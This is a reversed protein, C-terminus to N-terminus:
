APPEAAHLLKMMERATKAMDPGPSLAFLDGIVFVRRTKVASLYPLASWLRREAAQGEPGDDQGPLFVLIAEPDLHMIQEVGLQPFVAPSPPLLNVGGALTLLEDLFTGKPAVYIERLEGSAHGVSILTRVPKLGASEGRVAELEARIRAILAQGAAVNGLREALVSIAAYADAVSDTPLPLATVGLAELRQQQLTMSRQVLVLDPRLSM